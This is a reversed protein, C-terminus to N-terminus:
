AECTPLVCKVFYLFHKELTGGILVCVTCVRFISLLEGLQQSDASAPIRTQMDTFRAFGQKCLQNV